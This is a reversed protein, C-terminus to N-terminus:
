LKESNEIMDLKRLVISHRIRGRTTTSLSLLPHKYFHKSLITKLITKRSM